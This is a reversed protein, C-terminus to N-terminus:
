IEEKRVKSELALFFHERQRDISQLVLTDEEVVIVDGVVFEGEVSKKLHRKCEYDSQYVEAYDASSVKAVETTKWQNRKIVLWEKGYLKLRSFLKVQM